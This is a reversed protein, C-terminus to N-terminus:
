EIEEEVVVTRLVKRTTPKPLKDFEAQYRTRFLEYHERILKVNAPIMGGLQAVAGVDFMNIVGSERVREFRFYDKKHRALMTETILADKM